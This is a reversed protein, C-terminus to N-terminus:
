FHVNKKRELCRFGVVEGPRDFIVCGVVVKIVRFAAITFHGVANVTHLEGIASGLNDGVVSVDLVSTFGFLGLVDM